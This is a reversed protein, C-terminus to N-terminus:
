SMKKAMCLAMHLAHSSALYRIYEREGGRGRSLRFEKVERYNEGDVAVYVLGVPKKDNGGKPGAIGTTSIGIDAGSLLRVGRAMELATQESYETYNELTESQVGLVRNKIDNSYSCVGCSFVSSAGSVETIRKSIWGGTISEATAVTLHKKQLLHVLATQLNQVDVGYIYKEGIKERIHKLVPLMEKEAAEKTDSRCTIRLQVEGDKAYPALTPNTHSTMFDRLQEEVAAEGMGFIHVTKSVIIQKTLNEFYKPINESFMLQMEKPPGPLLIMTKEKNSMIIGPATGHHNQLCVSGEPILAQKRVAETVTRGTREFYSEISELAEKNYKLELGFYSAATEKTLDDYTPGLGGTTVVIDCTEFAKQIEELLRDPNDGVVSQRYVNVGLAALEKALFQANTNIIDGLLLETGVCLIEARM